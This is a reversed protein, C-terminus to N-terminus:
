YPPKLGRFMPFHKTNSTAIPLGLHTATAAVLLDAVSIGVHSRRYRRGLEGAERSIPETVAAWAVYRFLDEAVAREGSRLGRIVEARTVESAVPPERLDKVFDRAEPVRRLIDVFVTSDFLVGVGAV